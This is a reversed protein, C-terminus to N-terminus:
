ELIKKIVKYNQQYDWVCQNKFSSDAINYRFISTIVFKKPEANGYSCGHSVLTTSFANSCIPDM